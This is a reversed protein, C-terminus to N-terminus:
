GFAGGGEAVEDIAQPYGSPQGTSIPRVVRIPNTRQPDVRFNSLTMGGGKGVAVALEPIQAEKKRIMELYKKAEMYMEYLVGTVLEGGRGALRFAAFVTAQDQVWANAALQARIRNEQVYFNVQNSAWKIAWVIAPDNPDLPDGEAVDLQLDLGQATMLNALLTANTYYAEAM